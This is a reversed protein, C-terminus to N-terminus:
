LDPDAVPTLASFFARDAHLIHGAVLENVLYKVLRDLAVSQAGSQAEDVQVAAYLAEAKAVLAQHQRAHEALGAYGCSQLINEEFRFHEMVHSLMQLFAADFRDPQERQLAVADLLGNALEFLTRHQRDIDRHGSNFAAKWRLHVYSQPRNHLPVAPLAAPVAQCLEVANRGRKKARYMAEDGLRLLEKDSLSHDPYLAVGISSSISLV